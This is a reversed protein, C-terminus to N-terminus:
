GRVGAHHRPGRAGCPRRRRDPHRFLPRVYAEGTGPTPDPCGRLATRAIRMARCSAEATGGVITPGGSTRERHRCHPPSAVLALNTGAREPDAGSRAVRGRAVSAAAASAGGPAPSITPQLWTPLP